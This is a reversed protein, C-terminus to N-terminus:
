QTVILHPSLLCLPCVTGAMGWYTSAFHSFWNLAVTVLALSPFLFVGLPSIPPPPFFFLVKPLIATIGRRTLSVSFCQDKSQLVFYSFLEKEIVFVFVHCSRVNKFIVFWVVSTWKVIEDIIGDNLHPFIGCAEVTWLHAPNEADKVM